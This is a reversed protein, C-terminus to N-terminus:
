GHIRVVTWPVARARGHLAAGGAAPREVWTPKAGALSRLVGEVMRMLFLLATGVVLGGLTVWLTPVVFLEFASTEM